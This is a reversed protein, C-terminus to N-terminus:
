VCVNRLVSIGIFRVAVSLRLLLLIYLGECYKDTNVIANIPLKCITLEICDSQCSALIFLHGNTLVIM